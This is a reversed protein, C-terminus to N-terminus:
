ITKLVRTNLFVTVISINLEVHKVNKIIMDLNIKWLIQYHAQWLDQVILSDYYTHYINQLKKDIKIM